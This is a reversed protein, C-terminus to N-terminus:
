PRLPGADFLQGRVKRGAQSLGYCSRGDPSVTMTDVRGQPWRLVLTNGTVSWKFEPNGAHEHYNSATGNPYFKLKVVSGRELQWQWVFYEAKPIGNPEPQERMGGSGSPPTAQNMLDALSRREEPLERNLASAQGRDAIESRSRDSRQRIEESELVPSTGARPKSVNRRRLEPQDAAVEHGSSAEHEDFREEAIPPTGPRFQQQNNLYWALAGALVLGATCVAVIPLGSSRNRRAARYTSAGSRIQPVPATPVPARSPPVPARSPPVPIASPSPTTRAQVAATRRLQVDYDAKRRPDLLCIQAAAVENLIRQSLAAQQGLQYNRLHTMQRDAAAGIVDPSSEFQEIGLLRYHNPPQDKPPIGLWRHYPDFPEEPMPCLPKRVRITAYSNDRLNFRHGARYTSFVRSEVRITGCRLGVPWVAPSNAAVVAARGECM